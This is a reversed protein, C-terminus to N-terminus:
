LVTKETSPHPVDEPYSELMDDYKEEIIRELTEFSFRTGSCGNKILPINQVAINLQELIKTSINIEETCAVGIVGDYSNNQFIKKICSSGPLVYIDFNEKKALKTAKNVQCDDSCNRCLYSALGPDFDAKCRSDM